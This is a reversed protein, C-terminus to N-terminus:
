DLLNITGVDLVQSDTLTISATPVSTTITGGSNSWWGATFSSPTLFCDIHTTIRGTFNDTNLPEVALRYNVGTPVGSIVFSGDNNISSHTSYHVGDGNTGDDLFVPAGIVPNGSATLFKGKISAFGTGLTGTALASAESPAYACVTDDDDNQTLLYLLGLALIPSITTESEAENLVEAFPLFLTCGAGGSLSLVGAVLLAGLRGACRRVLTKSGPGSM